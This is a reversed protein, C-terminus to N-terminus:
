LARHKIKHNTLTTRNDLELINLELNTFLHIWQKFLMHMVVRQWEHSPIGVNVLYLLFCRNDLDIYNELPKAM